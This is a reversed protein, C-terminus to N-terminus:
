QCRVIRKIRVFWISTTCTCRGAIRVEGVEVGGATTVTITGNFSAAGDALRYTGSSQKNAVTLSYTPTGKIVSLDNVLATNGAAVGSIDFDVIAGDYASITAKDGFTVKGTLKGGRSVYASGSSVFVDRVVFHIKRM